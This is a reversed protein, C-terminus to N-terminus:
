DQARREKAVREGFAPTVPIDWWAQNLWIENHNIKKSKKFIQFGKIFLSRHKGRSAPKFASFLIQRCSCINKGM